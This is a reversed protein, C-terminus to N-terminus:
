ETRKRWIHKRDAYYIELALDRLFNAEAEVLGSEDRLPVRGLSREIFKDICLSHLDAGRGEEDRRVALLFLIYYRFEQSLREVADAASEQPLKQIGDFYRYAADLLHRNLFAAFGEAPEEANQLLYMSFMALRLPLVQDLAREATEPPLMRRCRPGLDELHSDFVYFLRHETWSEPDGIRETGFWDSLLGM